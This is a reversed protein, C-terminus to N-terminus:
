SDYKMILIYRREPFKSNFLFYSVPVTDKGADSIMVFLDAALGEANGRPILLYDPWGCKCFDDTESNPDESLLQDYPITVSSDKSHREILNQGPAM